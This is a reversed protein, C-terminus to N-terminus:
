EDKEGGRENRYISVYTKGYKYKKLLTLSYVDSDLSEERNHECVIIAGDDLIDIRSIKKLIENQIDKSYPPDLFVLGFKDRGNASKLYESYDQRAIRCKKILGTKKANSKIVEVAKENEDIIVASDAGRSLAELALQGSGAFLDLVRKGQIEFQIASFLGEKVRESTPRTIEEGELTELKVGRAIGTIIRMMFTVEVTIETSINM